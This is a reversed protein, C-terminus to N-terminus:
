LAHIENLEAIIKQDNVIFATFTGSSTSKIWPFYPAEEDTGIFVDIHNGRIAGGKDGAFFYGDHIIEKGNPLKIKTGRAKPIFLVTGPAISNLDTAITRYPALIYKDPLGDGWPGEALKFKTKSVDFKFFDKCNVTYDSTEGAYNYARVEQTSSVIRVSGELAVTCWNKRSLMPGLVEGSKARLATEGSIDKMVPTDYYTAWLTLSKGLDSTNPNPFQFKDLEIPDKTYFESASTRHSACATLIFISSLMITKLM